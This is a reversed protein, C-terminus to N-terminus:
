PSETNIIDRFQSGNMANTHSFYLNHLSKAICYIGQPAQEATIKEYVSSPVVLIEFDPDVFLDASKEYAHEEAIVCEIPAHTMRAESFLKHGEFFFRETKNRHKKEQLKAADVIRPNSRSTIIKPTFDPM